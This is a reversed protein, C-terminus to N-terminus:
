AKQLREALTGADPPQAMFGAMMDEILRAEPLVLSTQEEDSQAWWHRGDPTFLVQLAGLKLFHECAAQPTTNEGYLALWDAATLCVLRANGCYSTIVRVAEVKNPWIREAYNMRLSIACRARQAKESAETIVRRSPDKSLAFASTHFWTIQEFQAYPFQRIALQADAGRYCVTDAGPLRLMLTTPEELRSVGSIDIGANELHNRLFDGLVDQGVAAVAIVKGGKRALAAGLRAVEGDPTHEFLNTGSAGSHENAHRFAVMLEGACLVDIQKSM